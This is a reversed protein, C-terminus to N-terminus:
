AVYTELSRIIMDLGFAFREDSDAQILEAAYRSLVPFRDPPLSQYYAQIEALRGEFSRAAEETDGYRSVILAGEYADAAIYLSLSDAARAAVYPPVGGALMIALMAEGIRMAHYGVPINGLSLRAIDRHNAHARQIEVALERLQEQWRAPDPEPVRVESLVRERVLDLLEEKNAVHAYLSAAGTHLEDAVRRMSVADLGEADLV